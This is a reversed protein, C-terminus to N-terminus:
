DREADQDPDAGAAPGPQNLATFAARSDVASAFPHKDTPEDVSRGRRTFRAVAFLVVVIVAAVVAVQGTDM